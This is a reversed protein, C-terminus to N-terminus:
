FGGPDARGPDPPEPGGPAVGPFFHARGGAELGEGLEEVTVRTRDGAPYMAEVPPLWALRVGVEALRALDGPEDRPYRDLDEGPGFQTPNVFISAVVHDARALAHRMLALHGDHLAGM